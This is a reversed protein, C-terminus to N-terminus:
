RGDRLVEVALTLIFCRKKPTICRTMSTGHGYLRMSEHGGHENDCVGSKVPCGNDSEEVFGAVKNESSRRQRRDTRPSCVM